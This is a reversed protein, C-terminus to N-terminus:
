DCKYAKEGVLFSVLVASSFLGSIKHLVPHRIWWMTNWHSSPHHPNMSSSQKVTLVMGTVIRLPLFFDVAATIQWHQETNAQSFLHRRYVFSPPDEQAAGMFHIIRIFLHTSRFSSAVSRRCSTVGQLSVKHTQIFPLNSGLHQLSFWVAQLCSSTHTWVLSFM